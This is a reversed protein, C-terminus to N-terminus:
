KMLQMLPAKGSHSDNWAHVSAICLVYTCSCITGSTTGAGKRLRTDFLTVRHSQYGPKKRGCRAAFNSLGPRGPAIPPSSQHLLKRALHPLDESGHAFTLKHEERSRVMCMRM